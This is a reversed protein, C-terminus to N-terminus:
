YVQLQGQTAQHLMLMRAVVYDDNLGEPANYTRLGSPSIKMEYAECENWATEDEIWKWTHQFFALRLTQVVIGKSTNSMWFSACDIGDKHLEEINPEGISNEEALLEVYTDFRELEIKLFDRQASYGIKNYRKLVLEVMCDACGISLATFDKRNGWDLGAVLRHGKHEELVPNSYFDEIDLSFVQGEGPVFEALIEAKYDEETMDETLDDLAEKSLHPNDLSSFAFEAWRPNNLAKLYLLYFHNRFNPTSIFTTTGNTDLMMPQCVKNWIIPNQFAYEDLIIDDGWGGRLHDPKNGTRAEIRGGTKVYDLTRKTENKKVLGIAIADSLWDTCMEWYSDTQITVPAIYLIRRGEQAKLVSHRSAWTTKGGRRGAKIIRRKLNCNDILAQKAHPTPLTVVLKKM